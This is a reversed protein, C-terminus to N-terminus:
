KNWPASDKVLWGTQLQDLFEGCKISGSPENAYEYTGMVQRWGSDAWGRFIWRLIIKEDV